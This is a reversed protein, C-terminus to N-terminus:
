WIRRRTVQTIIGAPSSSIALWNKRLWSGSRSAARPDAAPTTAITGSPRTSSVEMANAAPASRRALRRTSTCSSAAISPRARASTSHMSLVPVSVLGPRRRIAVSATAPRGPACIASATPASAAASSAGFSVPRRSM